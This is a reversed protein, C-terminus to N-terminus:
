CLIELSRQYPRDFTGCRAAQNLLAFRTKGPEIDGLSLTPEGRQVAGGREVIQAPQVADAQVLQFPLQPVEPGDIDIAWPTQQEPEIIAVGQVNV